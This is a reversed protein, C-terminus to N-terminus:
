SGAHRAERQLCCEVEAGLKENFAAVYGAIEHHHRGVEVEKEIYTIETAAVRQSLEEKSNNTANLVNSVTQISIKYEIIKL